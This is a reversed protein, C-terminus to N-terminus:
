KLLRKAVQDITLSSVFNYIQIDGIITTIRNASSDVVISKDGKSFSLLSDTEVETAYGKLAAKNKIATKNM